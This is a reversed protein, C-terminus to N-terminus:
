GGIAERLWRWFKIVVVGPIQAFLGYVFALIAALWLVHVFKILIILLILGLTMGVWVATPQPVGLIENRAPHFQVKVGKHLTELWITPAAQTKAANLFHFRVMQGRNIVPLLYERRMGHLDVQAQTPQQGPGVALQQSFENTWSAIQTTGVIDTRETLLVTDNSFTRVVVNEYDKMSYNILEVTSLYLNSVPNGNWTVRVSGFVADDASVSVRDHRVSYTFLGRKNLVYQTLLTLVVGGVASAIGFFYKNSLFSTDM